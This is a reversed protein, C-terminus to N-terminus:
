SVEGGLAAPLAPERGSAVPEAAAEAGPEPAEEGRRLERLTYRQSPRRGPCLLALVERAVRRTLEPSGCTFIDLAVFGREPWTHFAVHSEALLVVGSAGQPEFHHVQSGVVHAGGARAAQALAAILADGDALPASPVDWLDLLIHHGLSDM